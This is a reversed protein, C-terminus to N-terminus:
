MIYSIFVILIPAETSIFDLLEENGKGQIFDHYIEKYLNLFTGILFGAFAGSSGFLGLIPILASYVVGVVIHEKKDLPLSHILEKLSM